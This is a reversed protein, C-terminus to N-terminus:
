PLSAEPNVNSNVSMLDMHELIFDSEVKLFEM